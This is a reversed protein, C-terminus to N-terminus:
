EYNTMDVPTIDLEELVNKIETEPLGLQALADQIELIIEDNDQQNKKM